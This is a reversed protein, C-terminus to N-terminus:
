PRGIRTVREISVPFVTEEAFEPGERFKVEGSVRQSVTSGLVWGTAEDIQLFGSQTGRVDYELRVDGTSVGQGDPNPQVTSRLDLVAVGRRRSKLTWTNNVTVALGRTTISRKSWSDGIAVPEAPFTALVDGMVEKMAEDGYERRAREAVAGASGVNDLIRSILEEAGAVKTVQGLPTVDIRFGAGALAAFTRMAPDVSASPVPDSSDFEASGAGGQKVRVSDYTVEIDATGDDRVERVLCSLEFVKTVSAEETPSEPLVGLTMEETIRVRYAEGERLRLRLQVSGPTPAAAVVVGNPEQKLSSSLRSLGPPLLLLVVVAICRLFGHLITNDHGAILELLKDAWVVPALLVAVAVSALRRKRRYPISNFLRGELPHGDLLRSDLPFGGLPPSAAPLAQPLDFDAFPPLPPPAKAEAADEREGNALSLFARSIDDLLRPVHEGQPGLALSRVQDYREATAERIREYETEGEEVGLLDYPSPPRRSPPIGLWAQYPDFGESM